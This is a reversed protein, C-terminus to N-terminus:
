SCTACFDCPFKVQTSGGVWWVSSSLCADGGGMSLLVSIGLTKVSTECHRNGVTSFEAVGNAKLNPLCKIEASVFRDPFTDM